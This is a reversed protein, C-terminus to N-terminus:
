PTVCKLKGRVKIGYNARVHFTRYLKLNYIANTPASTNATGWPPRIPGLDGCLLYM